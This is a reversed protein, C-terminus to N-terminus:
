TAERPPQSASNSGSPWRCPHLPLKMNSLCNAKHGAREHQRGFVSHRHLPWHRKVSFSALLRWYFQLCESVLIFHIPFKAAQAELSNVTFLPRNFHYTNVNVRGATHATPNM